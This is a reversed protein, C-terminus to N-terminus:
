PQPLAEFEERTMGYFLEDHFAGGTYIMRRLRGELTFGLHEHLHQSPENFSFVNITCKQYRREHFFHRLVLWIAESAYGKRRAQPMVMLGYGFTGCRLNCNQTNITGVLVRDQTEIQFRFTDDVAGRKAEQEAWAQTGVTSRPFWIEDSLRGVDTDGDWAQHQEWDGPEFARLRVRKGEFVNPMM